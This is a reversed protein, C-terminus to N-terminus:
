RLKTGFVHDWVTTSVGYNRTAFRHHSSHHKFLLAPVIGYGQHACHHVFLYWAYTILAGAPFAGNAVLYVLAFCVWIQWSVTLVAEDPNSHHLAHGAPMLDHLVFRHVIYESFTWAVFGMVFLAVLSSMKLTSTALLASALIGAVGMEGFYMIAIM